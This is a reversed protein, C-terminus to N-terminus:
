EKDVNVLIDGNEVKVVFTNLCVSDPNIGRGTCVDYEWHHIPCILVKGELHGESLAIGKHPCKDEYAYITDEVNILLLRKGDVMLKIKEGSWLENLTAVKKFAM